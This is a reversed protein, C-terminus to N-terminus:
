MSSDFSIKVMEDMEHKLDLLKESFKIPDKLLNEDEVIERGREEIYPNMKQIILPLTDSVRCFLGYMLCLEELNKHKFMYTTGTEKDSVVEAM